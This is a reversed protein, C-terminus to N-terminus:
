FFFGKKTRFCALCPLFNLSIFVRECGGLEKESEEMHQMGTM